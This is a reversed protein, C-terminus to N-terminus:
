GRWEKGRKLADDKKMMVRSSNRRWYAVGDGSCWNTVYRLIVALPHLLVMTLRLVKLAVGGLQGAIVAVLTLAVFGVALAVCLGFLWFFAHYGFEFM